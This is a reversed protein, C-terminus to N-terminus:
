FAKSHLIGDSFLPALGLSPAWHLLLRQRWRPGSSNAVVVPHASTARLCVAFLVFALVIAVLGLSWLPNSPCISAGMGTTLCSGDHMSMTMACLGFVASAAFAMILLTGITARHM